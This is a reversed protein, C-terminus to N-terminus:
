WFTLHPYTNTHLLPFAQAATPLLCLNTCGNYFCLISIGWFILLIVTMHDLLGMKPFIDLPLSGQIHFLYRYDWTWQLMIWLLGSLSVVSTDMLLQIFLSYTAYIINCQIHTIYTYIIWGSFINNHSTMWGNFLLFDHWKQCYSHIELVNCLSFSMLCVCFSYYQRIESIHPIKFYDSEYFCLTFPPQWSRPTPPISLHALPM